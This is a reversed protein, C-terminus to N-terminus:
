RNCSFYYCAHTIKLTFTNLTGKTRRKRLKRTCKLQVNRRVQQKHVQSRLKNGNRIKPALEVCKESSSTDRDNNNSVKNLNNLDLTAKICNESYQQLIDNSHAFQVKFKYASHLLPICNLCISHPVDTLRIM